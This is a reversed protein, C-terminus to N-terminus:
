NLRARRRYSQTAAAVGARENLGIDHSAAIAVIFATHHITHEIVHLAERLLSSSFEGIAQSNNSYEAVVRVPKDDFSVSRLWVLLVAIDSLAATASHEVPSGRRRSNYDIVGDSAGAKLAYFYDLSHRVHPGIATYCGNDDRLAIQVVCDSLELLSEIVPKQLMSWNLSQSM